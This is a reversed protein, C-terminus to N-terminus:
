EVARFDIMQEILGHRELFEEGARHFFDGCELALGHQHKEVFGGGAGVRGELDGGFAERRIDGIEVDGLRGDGLTLRNSLGDLGQLRHAGVEHDDAVLCRAQGASDGPEGAGRDDVGPITGVRV